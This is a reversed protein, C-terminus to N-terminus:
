TNYVNKRNTIEHLVQGRAEILGHMRGSLANMKRISNAFLTGQLSVMSKSHMGDTCIDGNRMISKRWQAKKLVTTEIDQVSVVANKCGDCKRRSCAAHIFIGLIVGFVLSGFSESVCACRCSIDSPLNHIDAPSDGDRGFAGCSERDM